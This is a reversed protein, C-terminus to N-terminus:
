NRLGITVILLILFLFSTITTFLGYFFYKNKRMFIESIGVVSHVIQKAYDKPNDLEMLVQIYREVREKHDKGLRLIDGAWFFVMEM